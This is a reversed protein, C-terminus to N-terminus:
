WAQSGLFSFAGDGPWRQEALVNPPGLLPAFVDRLSQVAITARLYSSGGTNEGFVRINGCLAANTLSLKGIIAPSVEGYRHRREFIFQDYRLGATRMM